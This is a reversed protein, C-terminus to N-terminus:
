FLLLCCSAPVCPVSDAGVQNFASCILVHQYLLYQTETHYRFSRDLYAVGSIM